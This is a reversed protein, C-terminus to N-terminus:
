PSSQHRAGGGNQSDANLLAPPTGRVSASGPDVRQKALVELDNVPKGGLLVARCRLVLDTLADVHKYYYEYLATNKSELTNLVEQYGFFDVLNKRLVTEVAQILDDLKDSDPGSSVAGTAAPIENLLIVYDRAYRTADPRWRIGPIRVGMETELASRLKEYRDNWAALWSANNLLAEDGFEIAIPTVVPLMAPAGLYDFLKLEKEAHKFRELYDANKPDLALAQKLAAVAKRWHEGSDVAFIGTQAKEALALKSFYLHSAPDHKAAESYNTAAEGFRGAQYHYDGLSDYYDSNDPHNEIALNYQELSKEDHGAAAYQKALLNNLVALKKRDRLDDLNEVAMLLVDVMGRGAFRVVISNDAPNLKLQFARGITGESIEWAQSEEVISGRADPSLRVGQEFFADRLTKPVHVWRGATSADEMKNLGERVKEDLVFLQRDFFAQAWDLVLWNSPDSQIADDIGTRVTWLSDIRRRRIPQSDELKSYIELLTANLYFHEPYFKRLIYDSLEASRLLIEKNEPEYSMLDAWLRLLNVFSEDVQDSRPPAQFFRGVAGGLDDIDLGDFYSAFSSASVVKKLKPIIRTRRADKLQRLSKEIREVDAKKEAIRDKTQSNAVNGNGGGAPRSGSGGFNQTPPSPAVVALPQQEAAELEAIEGKLRGLETTMERVSTVVQVLNTEISQQLMQIWSPALKEAKELYDASAQSGSPTWSVANSLNYHAVASEPNLQIAEAYLDVARSVFRKQGTRIYYQLCANGYDNLAFSLVANRTRDSVRNAAQETAPKGDAAKNAPPTKGDATNGAAIQEAAKRVRNAFGEYRNLLSDTMYSYYENLQTTKGAGGVGPDAAVAQLYLEFAENFALGGAEAAIRALGYSLDGIFTQQRIAKVNLGERYEGTANDPQDLLWWLYGNAAYAGINGPNIRQVAEFADIIPQAREVSLENRLRFRYSLYNALRYKVIESAPALEAAQRLFHLKQNLDPLTEAMALLYLPSKDCADPSTARALSLERRAREPADLQGYGLSSVTYADFLAQRNEDFLPRRRSSAADGPYTLYRSILGFAHGRAKAEANGFKRHSSVAYLRQLPAIARQMQDPVEFLPNLTRGSLASVIRRNILCRCYSM